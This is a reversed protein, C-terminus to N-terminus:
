YPSLRRIQQQIKNNCLPCGEFPNTQFLACLYTILILKLTYSPIMFDFVPSSSSFVFHNVQKYFCRFCPDASVTPQAVRRM